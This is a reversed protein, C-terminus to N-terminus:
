IIFKTKEFKHTYFNKLAKKAYERDITLKCKKSNFSVDEVIKEVIASLRRAGINDLETNMSHCVESIYVLADDDFSIDINDVKLLSTVNSIIGTKLKLIEYFDSTKLNNLKVQIPLRGQLEPFLDSPKANYFAGSAIFLIYKTDINGHKTSVTTGSLLALLDRQVGERSVEGRSSSNGNSILKDIEDIFIIGNNTVDKVADIIVSDEDIMNTSEEEVIRAIAEKVSVQLIKKRNENGFKGLVDNLQIMSINGGLDIHQPHDHGNDKVEIKVQTEDISGNRINKICENVMEINDVSGLLAEAVRFEAIKIAQNFFKKKIGDRKKKITLEVIDRIISEVDRGVYGVETFKTADVKLFPYDCISAIRRMIETKGVGTSGILLINTPTINDAIEQDKIQNRRYRNRTAISIARKADGQGVIYKDLEKVMDRPLTKM